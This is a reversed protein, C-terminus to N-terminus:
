CKGRDEKNGLFQRQIQPKILNLSEEKKKKKTKSSFYKTPPEVNKSRFFKLTNTKELKIELM